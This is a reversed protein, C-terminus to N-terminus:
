TPPKLEGKIWADAAKMPDDKDCMGCAYLAGLLTPQRKLPGQCKPCKDSPLLRPM